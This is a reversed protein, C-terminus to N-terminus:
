SAKKHLELKLIKQIESQEYINHVIPINMLHYINKKKKKKKKCRDLSIKSKLFLAVLILFDFM